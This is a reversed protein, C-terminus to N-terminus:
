QAETELPVGKNLNIGSGSQLFICILANAQDILAQDPGESQELASM